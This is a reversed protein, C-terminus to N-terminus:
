NKSLNKQMIGRVNKNFRKQLLLQKEKRAEDSLSKNKRLNKIAKQVNKFMVDIKAYERNNNLWEKDNDSKATEFRKAIQANARFEDYVNFDRAKGVFRRIVPVNEIQVPEGRVARDITDVGRVITKGAGGAFSEFVHQIDAPSLDTLLSSGEYKNGGFAENLWKTFKVLHKSTQDFYLESQPLDAGFVPQDPRIKRGSWKTNTTLDHLPKLATPTLNALLGRNDNGMPNFAGMGVGLINMGTERLTQDGFLYSSANRGLSPLINLGYAMPFSVYNGGTRPLMVIFNNDKIDSSIKDYYSRGEEDDFDSILRNLFDSMAGLGIMAALAIRGKNSKAMSWTLRATLHSGQLAANGFVYLTNVLTGYTGKKNFNITLNKAFVAAKQATMGSKRAAQFGAFRTASEAIDNGASVVDMFKGIGQKTKYWAGNAQREAMEKELKEALDQLQYIESYGTKGGERLFEKYMRTNENDIGRHHQWSTKVSGPIASLIGKAMEWSEAESAHVAATQIDRFINTLIFDPNYATNMASIVRNIPRVLQFLPESESNKTKIAALLDKDKIVIAADRGGFKAHVTNERDGYLDLRYQVEGTREDFYPKLKDKQIEYFQDAPNLLAMRAFSQMVRNHEGRGFTTNIAALSFMLHDQAESRRGLARADLIVTDDKIRKLPTYYKYKADIINKVEEDILGYEVQKNLLESHMKWFLDGAEMLTDEGYKAFLEEKVKAAKEDSWGSGPVKKERFGPNIENIYKNREPAHMAYTFSNFDEYSVKSKDLLDMIPNWYKDKFEGKNTEIRGDIVDFRDYPNAWDPLKKGRVLEVLNQVKKLMLRRDFLARTVRDAFTSIKDAVTVPLEKKTVQEAATPQSLYAETKKITKAMKAERRARAEEIIKLQERETNRVKEFIESKVTKAATALTLFERKADAWFWKNNVKLLKAVRTVKGTDPSTYELHVTRYNEKKWQFDKMKAPRNLVQGTTKGTVTSAPRGSIAGTRSKLVATLDAFMARLKPGISKGFQKLMARAWDAFKTVGSRLLEFGASFKAAIRSAAYKAFVAPNLVAGRRGLGSAKTVQSILDNGGDKANFEAIIAIRGDKNKFMGARSNLKDKGIQALSLEGLEIQAARLLEYNFYVEEGTVPTETIQISASIEEGAIITQANKGDTAFLKFADGFAGKRSYNPVAILGTANKDFGYKDILVNIAPVDPRQEYGTEIEPRGDIAVTADELVYGDKGIYFGKNKGGPIKGFANGPMPASRLAAVGAGARIDRSAIETRTKFRPDEDLYKRTVSKVEAILEEATKKRKAAFDETEARQMDHDYDFLFGSEHSSRRMNGIMKSKYYVTWWSGEKSQNPVLIIGTEKEMVAYAKKYDTFVTTVKRGDDAVKVNKSVPVAPKAARPAETKEADLRNQVMPSHKSKTIWDQPIFRVAGNDMKVYVQDPTGDITKPEPDIVYAGTERGDPFRFIIDDNKYLQRVPEAKVPEGMEAQDTYSQDEVPAAQAPQAAPIKAGTISEAKRNAWTSRHMQWAGASPAWRFGNSKLKERTAEDPKSDFFIQLRNEAVNDVIEGGDFEIKQTQQSQKVSLEEIRKKLRSMEANNSQLVYAPFGVRGGYDAELIKRAEAESFGQEQLKTIKEEGSLKTAKAVKNARKMQEQQSSISELKAKLKVIADEDASSISKNKEVSEARQSYYEAKKEEKLAADMKNHMRNQAARAGRESHHGVLIPQGMYFRESIKDAQRFLGSAKQGTKAARDAFRLALDRRKVEVATLNGTKERWATLAKLYDTASAFDKEEPKVLDVRARDETQVVAAAPRKIDGAKLLEAILNDDNIWTMVGTGARANRQKINTVALDIKWKDVGMPALARTVRGIFARNLQGRRFNSNSNYVDRITQIPDKPRVLDSATSPTELTQGSVEIKGPEAKFGTEAPKEITVLQSNVGTQRFAEKGAFAQGLNESAGGVTDLWDRFEVSEKDNAFTFHNGMVAVMKGGPALLEYAKRVHKIDRNKSFPPNMIVRDFKQDTEFNEFNTDIVEHNKMTLIERLDSLPEIVKVDAEPQAAKVADALDGKGASPELVTMGPKIDLEQAMREALAPPTPFFDFGEFKKGVLEREAKILPSEQKKNVSLNRYEILADALDFDSKIGFSRLRQYSDITELIRAFQYPIKVGKQTLSKKIAIIRAIAEDNLSINRDRTGRGLKEIYAAAPKMGQIAELEKSASDFWNGYPQPRSFQAGDKIAADTIPKTKYWDYSMDNKRAHRGLAITLEQKILQLDARSKVGKLYKAEGREMADALNNMTKAFAERNLADDTAGAAMRARRATNTQRDRNLDGQAQELLSAASKRLKQANALMEANEATIRTSSQTEAPATKTKVEAMPAIVPVTKGSNLGAAKDDAAQRNTHWSYQKGEPDLVRFGGQYSEVKYGNKTVVEDSAPPKISAQDAQIKLFTDNSRAPKTKQRARLLFDRSTERFTKETAESSLIVRKGNPLQANKTKGSRYFRTAALWEDDTMEDAPKTVSQKIPESQKPLATEAKPEIVPAPQKITTQDAPTETEMDSPALRKEIREAVGPTGSVRMRNETPINKSVTMKDYTGGRPTEVTIRKAQQQVPKKMLAFGGRVPTIVHTDKMENKTQYAKAIKQNTFPRGSKPMILDETKTPLIVGRNDALIRGEAQKPQSPLLPTEPTAEASVLTEPTMEAADLAQLEQGVRGAPYETAEQPLWKRDALFKMFRQKQPDSDPVSKMAAIKRLVAIPTANQEELTAQKDQRYAAYDRMTGETGEMDLIQPPQADPYLIEPAPGGFTQQPHILEGEPEQFGEATPDKIIPGSPQVTPINQNYTLQLMEDKLQKKAAALKQAEEPTTKPDNIQGTLKDIAAEFGGGALGFIAGGAFETKMQQITAPNKVEDVFARMAESFPKTSFHKAAIVTLGQAVEESGEGLSAKIANKLYTALGKQGVSEIGEKTFWKAVRAPTIGALNEIVAHPVAFLAASGAGGGAEKVSSYVEPLSMLGYTAAGGAVNPTLTSGLVKAGTVAQGAGATALMLPLNELITDTAFQPVDGLTMESINKGLGPITAQVTEDQGEARSLLADASEDAGIVDLGFAGLNQMGTGVRALGRQVPATLYKEIVGQNNRNEEAFQAETDEYAKVENLDPANAKGIAEEYKQRFFTKLQRREVPNLENKYVDSNITERIFDRMSKLKQPDTNKSM